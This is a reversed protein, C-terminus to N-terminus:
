PFCSPCLLFEDEEHEEGELLAYRNGCEDCQATQITAESSPKAASNSQPLIQSSVDIDEDEVEEIDNDNNNNRISNTEPRNRNSNSRQSQSTTKSASRDWARKKRPPLKNQKRLSDLRM